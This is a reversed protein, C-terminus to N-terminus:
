TQDNIKITKFASNIQKYLASKKDMKAIAAKLRNKNRYNAAKIIEELVIQPWYYSPYRKKIQEFPTKEGYNKKVGKNKKTRELVLRYGEGSYKLWEGVRAIKSAGVKLHRMIETYGFGDLLLEAIKLRKALMELEQVTILDRMFEAAEVSDRLSALAECFQITLREIEEKSLKSNISFKNM